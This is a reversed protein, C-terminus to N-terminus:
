FDFRAEITLGQLILDGSHDPERMRKILENHLIWLQHEWGARLLFRYQDESFWTEWKLGAFVHIVPEFTHPSVGTNLNTTVVNNAIAQDRRNLEFQGWLISLALDTFFSFNKTFYWTGDLGARLGIGWFDQDLEMRAQTGDVASTYNVTYDQDILAGQLGSHIRLTFFESLTLNKGLELHIDNYHISWNASARSLAVVDVGNIAWYPTLTTTAPNQKTSASIDSQIWTWSAYLDWDDHPLNLGLGVKFGPDFTWDLDHVSGKSVNAGAGSVAYFMGDQRTTWYIFDASAIFGWSEDKPQCPEPKLQCPEPKPQCPEPKPQCSEQDSFAPANAFLILSVISLFTKKM